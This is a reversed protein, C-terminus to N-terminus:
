LLKYNVAHYLAEAINKAGLKTFLSRKCAKITNPSKCLQGAIDDMTYGQTSLCLINREMESLTMSEKRVWQHRQLDYEYYAKSGEKKLVINGPKNRSSMSITCLALWVRGDPTLALPTLTHHVLHAKRGNTLHFDYKIVYDAREEIPFTEFLDFGKKNIDKLMDLEKAPVHDSYLAYGFERIKEAPCGCLLALNESVYAFNKKFYDIIYVCQYTNRAFAKAASVLLEVKKYDEDTIHEVM